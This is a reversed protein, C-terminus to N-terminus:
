NPRPDLDAVVFSLRLLLTGEGKEQAEVGSEPRTRKRLALKRINDASATLLAQIRM